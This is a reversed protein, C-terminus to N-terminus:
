AKREAAKVAAAYADQLLDDASIGEAQGEFSLIIRHRLCIKLNALLDDGAMAFRGQSLARVKSTLILAQGGRPSAGYRVYKRVSEPAFPCDPHTAQIVRAVLDRIPAAVPVELALKRMQLVREADIVKSVQPEQGGTTRDLIQALETGGPYGITLKTLFRDIQAEPLPYTGEMEIPNQTALVFFPERLKYRTGYATVAREQMAELLASQTKPTARNIEDALLIQGFIPGAQFEFKKHGKDDEVIINTGIIDTPMLDPTFQIRRFTLASVESLTRVLLTKGLGPVGEILAHGGGFITRLLDDVVEAQGVYVKAIETKVLEITEAFQQAQQKLDM